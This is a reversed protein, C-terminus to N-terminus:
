VRERCSARGIEDKDLIVEKLDRFREPNDTTPFVKAEGNVGHTNTIVGVQLMNQM